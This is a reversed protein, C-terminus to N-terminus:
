PLIVSIEASQPLSCEDHSRASDGRLANIQCLVDLCYLQSELAASRHSMVYVIWRDQLRSLSSYSLTMSIADYGKPIATSELEGGGLQSSSSSTPPGNIWSRGTWQDHAAPVSDGSRGTCQDVLPRDVSSPPILCKALSVDKGFSGRMEPKSFPKPFIMNPTPRFNM